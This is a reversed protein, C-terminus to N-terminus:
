GNGGGLTDSKEERVGIWWSTKLPKLEAFVFFKIFVRIISYLLTCRVDGSRVTWVANYISESVRTEFLFFLLLLFYVRRIIIIRHRVATNRVFRLSNPTVGYNGYHHRTLLAFVLCM